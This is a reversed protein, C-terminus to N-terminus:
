RDILGHLRRAEEITGETEYALTPDVEMSVYGKLGRGGDWVSRMLDCANAIDRAALAIFIEKADEEGALERIQADYREGESLAKQFITPNSTVGCVADEEMLRALEGSELLDRSLFDIWVSQGLASLQHLRSQAM